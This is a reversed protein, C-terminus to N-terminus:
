TNDRWIEKVAFVMRVVSAFSWKHMANTKKIQKKDCLFINKDTM